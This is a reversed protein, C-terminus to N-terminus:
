EKEEEDDYDEDGEEANNGSAQSAHKVRPDDEAADSDTTDFNKESYKDDKLEGKGTRKNAKEFSDISHNNRKRRTM